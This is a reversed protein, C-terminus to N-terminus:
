RALAVVSVAGEYTDVYGTGVAPDIAIADPYDAVPLRPFAHRCGAPNASNCARGDIVSVSTDFENTVYVHDTTQDIALNIAGFGVSTTAPTEGCGAQTQDNCTAGDIVSVYGNADSSFAAQNSTYM